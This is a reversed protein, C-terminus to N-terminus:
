FFELTKGPNELPKRLTNGDSNKVTTGHNQWPKGFPKGNIEWSKELTKEINEKPIGM